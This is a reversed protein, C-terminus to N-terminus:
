TRCTGPVARVADNWRRSASRERSRSSSLPPAARRSSDRLHPDVKVSTSSYPPPTMGCSFSSVPNVSTAGSHAASPIVPPLIAGPAEDLSFVSSAPTSFYWHQMWGHIRVSTRIAAFYAVPRATADAEASRAVALCAGRVTVIDPPTRNWTHRLTPGPRVSRSKTRSASRTPLSSPRRTPM